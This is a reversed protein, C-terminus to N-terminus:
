RFGVAIEDMNFPNWVLSSVSNPLRFKVIPPIKFESEQCNRVRDSRGQLDAARLMDWDYITITRDVEVALLVGMPDWRIHDIKGMSQQELSIWSPIKWKNPWCYSLSIKSKKNQIIRAKSFPSYHRNHPHHSLCGGHAIRRNLKHVINRTKPVYPQESELQSQSPADFDMSTDSYYRGTGRQNVKNEQTANRSTTRSLGKDECENGNREAGNVGNLDNEPEILPADKTTSALNKEVIASANSISTKNDDSKLQKQRKCATSSSTEKKSIHADVSVSSAVRKKRKKEKSLKSHCKRTAPPNTKSGMLLSTLPLDDEDDDDDTGSGDSKTVTSVKSKQYFLPYLKSNKSKPM